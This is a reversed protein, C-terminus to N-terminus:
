FFTSFASTVSPAVWTKVAQDKSMVSVPSLYEVFQSQLYKIFVAIWTVCKKSRLSVCLANQHYVSFTFM